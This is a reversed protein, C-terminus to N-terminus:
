LRIITHQFRLQLNDSQDLYADHRRCSTQRPMLLKEGEGLSELKSSSGKDVFSNRHVWEAMAWPRKNREFRAVQVDDLFQFLAPVVDRRM